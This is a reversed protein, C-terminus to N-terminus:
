DDFTVGLAELRDRYGEVLGPRFLGEDLWKLLHLTADMDKAVKELSDPKPRPQYECEIRDSLRLASDRQCGECTDFEECVTGAARSFICMESHGRDRAAERLEQVLNKKTM